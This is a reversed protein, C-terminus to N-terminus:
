PRIKQGGIFAGHAVEKEDIGSPGSKVRFISWGYECPDLITISEFLIREVKRYSQHQARFMTIGSPSRWISLKYTTM